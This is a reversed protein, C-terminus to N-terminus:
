YLVSFDSASILHFIIQPNVNLTTKLNVKNNYTYQHKTEVQTQAGHTHVCQLEPQTAAAMPVLGLPGGGMAKRPVAKGLTELKLFPLTWESLQHKTKM